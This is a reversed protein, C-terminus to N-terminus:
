KHALFYYNKGTHYQECFESHTLTKKGLLWDSLLSIRLGCEDCLLRFVDEPGVGYCDTGGKGHEFVIYPKCRRICEVAGKMVLYEAGEVDIKIFDIHEISEARLISDLSNTQVTIETDKEEPRDYKRKKLGSFSPNSIVYNFTSVSERDSLALQFLKINNSTFKQTLQEYLDPIPEFAFFKGQPALTTMQKLVNGRNCGADICVSTPTLIREMVADTLKNYYSNKDINGVKFLFSYWRTEGILAICCQAIIRKVAKM